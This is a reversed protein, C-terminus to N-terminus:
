PARAPLGPGAGPAGRQGGACGARRRGTCAAAGPCPRAASHVKLRQLWKSYCDVLWPRGPSLSATLAPERAATARGWGSVNGPLGHGGGGLVAPVPGEGSGGQGLWTGCM